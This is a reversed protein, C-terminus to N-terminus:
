QEATRSSTDNEQNKQEQKRKESKLTIYTGLLGGAIHGVIPQWTGTWLADVGIAVALLWSTTIVFGTWTAKWANLESTAVVNLTRAWLFLYQTTFVVIAAIWPSNKILETFQILVDQVSM